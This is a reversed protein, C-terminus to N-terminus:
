VPPRPGASTPSGGGPEDQAQQRPRAHYREANKGLQGLKEDLTVLSLDLIHVGDRFHAFGLRAWAQQLAAVASDWDADSREEPGAETQGSLPAPYCVAARAGGSLKRIATGALLAGLGFGRWEPALIVAHLILIRSGVPELQEDLDPDLRGDGADFIAAAVHGLEADQGDLLAFPDQTEYIDVLTIDFDGVHPGGDGIDASVHWTEPADDVSFWWYHRHEYTLTIASPDEPPIREDNKNM